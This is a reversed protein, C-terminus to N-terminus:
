RLQLERKFLPVIPAATDPKGVLPHWISRKNLKRVRWLELEFRVRGNTGPSMTVAGVNNDVTRSFDVESVDWKRTAGQWSSTFSVPAPKPKAESVYPGVRSGPSAVFEHVEAVGELGVLTARSYRGTHIDGTLILIDHPDAGVGPQLAQEFIHCLRGYDGEFSSLSRDTKGGPKDFLPQALVLVGPGALDRAWTDLADWQDQEFFSGPPPGRKLDGRRSRADSVFFSVEGVNFDFFPHGDPNASRQFAHYVLETAAATVEHRDSGSGALWLQHEPFNNWFEHDDCTFYSPTAQLAHRYPPNDWYREYRAGVETVTAAVDAPFDVLPNHYTPIPFDLYLQDGILLKFAPQKSDCLFRIGGAYAGEKDADLWFCSAFLFSVGGDLTRPLTRWRFPGDSAGAITLEYSSGAHVKAESDSLRLILIGVRRNLGEV